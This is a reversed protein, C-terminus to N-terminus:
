LSGSNVPLHIEVFAGGAVPNSISFVGGMIEVSRKVQYIGLGSGGEKGITLGQSGVNELVEKPFGPGNDRIELMVVKESLTAKVHVKPKVTSEIAEKSNKLLNLVARLLLDRDVLCLVDNKDGVLEFELKSEDYGLEDFSPAELTFFWSQFNVLELEPKIGDIKNKELIREVMFEIRELSRSILRLSAEPKAKFHDVGAKIGAIPAKIDHAILRSYENIADLRESKVMEGQYSIFSNALFSVGDTLSRIEFNRNAGPMKNIEQLEEVKGRFLRDALHSFPEIQQSIFKSGFFSFLIVSLFLSLFLSLALYVILLGYYASNFHVEVVGASEGGKKFRIDRELVIAQDYPRDGRLDCIKGGDARTVSVYSVNEDALILRCYQNVEGDLGRLFSDRISRSFVELTAEYQRSSIELLKDNFTFFLVVTFFSLIILSSVIIPLIIKNKLNPTSSQM